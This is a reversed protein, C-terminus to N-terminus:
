QKSGPVARCSSSRRVELSWYSFHSANRPIRSRPVVQQHPNDFWRAAVACIPVQCASSEGLNLCYRLTGFGGQSCKGKRQGGSARTALSVQMYMYM